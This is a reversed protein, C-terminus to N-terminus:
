KRLVCGARNQCQAEAHHCGNESAGAEVSKKIFLPTTRGKMM